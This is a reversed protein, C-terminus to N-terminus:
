IDLEGMADDLTPETDDDPTDTDNPTDPKDKKKRKGGGRKKKPPDIVPNDSYVTAYNKRSAEVIRDFIESSGNDDLPITVGSLPEQPQVAALKVYFQHAPQNAIDGPEIRGDFFPLLLQEDLPSGTRFCVITGVNALITNVLLRDAQQATSQEAINLYFKYKRAESLLQIFSPTAFNQFEDVYLYFPTRNDEPMRARRMAAMQLQALVTIGFLESTDEGLLGKSLNCILIKGSQIIDDFDITSKSQGIIREASASFLFRGVKNTVGASMKVQQFDGAKAFEYRWFNQLHKNELSAVAEKRFKPDNLLQFITFLTPDKLTLATQVTNRILYEIRHGGKDDDSFIKRFISVTAETILEKQRLEDNTSLGPTLELLNLGIPFDLDDPNFYVVDDRRDEPILRLLEEAADGHPDIFALGKGKKIDQLMAYKFMTTKGMGTAGIYFVHHRREAATIGILTKDDNHNGEGLIVDLPTGDKLSVPAPLTRSLSRVLNETNTNPTPFHYIDAIESASLINSNRHLLAPLRRSFTYLRYRGRIFLPYNVRARLKQYRTDFGALTGRMSKIHSKTRKPDKSIVLARIEVHFLPQLVKDRISTNVEQELPNISRAPKLGQAVQMNHYPNSTPSSGFAIDGIFHVIERLLLIPIELPNFGRSSGGSLMNENRHVRHAIQHAEKITAPKFILQYVIQEDEQLAAMANTIFAMADHESFSHQAKIPLYWRGRQKFELVRVTKFHMDQPLYDEIVKIKAGSMHPQLAHKVPETDKEPVRIIHRIGQAKTSPVEIAFSFTQRQLVEQATRSMGIGHLIDMLEKTELPTKDASTPPTIELFTYKQLLLQRWDWLRLLLRCIVYIAFVGCVILVIQPLHHYVTFYFSKVKKGDSLIFSNAM